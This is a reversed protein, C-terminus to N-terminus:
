LQRISQKTRVNYSVYSLTMDADLISRLKVKTDMDGQVLVPVGKTAATRLGTRHQVVSSCQVAPRDGTPHQVIAQFESASQMQLFLQVWRMNLQPEVLLNDGSKVVPAAITVTSVFPYDQKNVTDVAKTQETPYQMSWCSWNEGYLGYLLIQKDLYVVSHLVFGRIEWIGWANQLYENGEKISRQVLFKTGGTSCILLGSSDHGFLEKVTGLSPCHATISSPTTATDAVAGVLMQRIDLYSPTSSFLLTTGQLHPQVDTDCASSSNLLLAAQKVTLGNRGRILGQTDSSFVYLDQNFEVAWRWNGVAQPNYLSIPDTDQTDKVTERYFQWPKNIASFFVGDSNMLVLRGQYVAVGNISNGIFEPDPNSTADGAYMTTSKTIDKLKGDATFSDFYRTSGQQLAQLTGASLELQYQKPMNLLEQPYMTSEVWQGTRKNYEFYEPNVKGIRVLMWDPLSPPLDAVDPISPNLSSGAAVAYTSGLTTYLSPICITDDSLRTAGVYVSDPQISYNIDQYITKSGFSRNHMYGWAQHIAFPIGANSTITGRTIQLKGKSHEWIGTNPIKETAGTAAPARAGLQIQQVRTSDLIDTIEVQQARDDYSYTVQCLMGIYEHVLRQQRAVLAPETQEALWNWDGQVPVDLSASREYFTPTIFGDQSETGSGNQVHVGYVRQQLQLRLTNGNVVTRTIYDKVLIASWTLHADSSKAYLFTCPYNLAYKAVGLFSDKIYQRPVYTWNAIHQRVVDNTNKTNWSIPATSITKRRNLVFLTENYVIYQFADKQGVLYADQTEALKQFALSHVQLVGRFYDHQLLLPIGAIKIPRLVQNEAKPVTRLLVAANRRRLGRVVDPLMNLMGEVQGQKRLHLPQESVGQLLSHEPILIQM